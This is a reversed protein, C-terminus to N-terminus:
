KHWKLFKKITSQEHPRRRGLSMVTHTVSGCDNCFSTVVPHALNLSVV